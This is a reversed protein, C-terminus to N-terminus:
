HGHAPHNQHGSFNAGWGMNGRGGYNGSFGGANYGYNQGYGQGSQHGGLGGLGYGSNQNGIHSPYGGGFSQQSQQPPPLGSQATQGPAASTASGPRGPQNLSPSPGATQKSDGFPKLSEESASQQGSQQQSYSQGQGPFANSRSFADGFGASNTGHSQNGSPQTSNSRNYDGFGGSVGSDRGHMSSQGFGGVNAPSSSHQDYPTQPSMGYGHHPQAYMSNKGAYPGFGQGYNGYQSMYQQYYPSSYYHQNYGYGANHPHQHLHGQQSQPGAHGSLAPNPTNNGSNQAEGYRSPIQQAQSSAYGSENPTSGFASGSRQQSIGADQNGAGPQNYTNSQGGYAYYNNYRQQDSTYYSSQYDGPASSTAGITSQAAQPQQSAPGQSQAGFNDYQSQQPAQHGFPDYKPASSTSEAQGGQHGYRGFQSYSQNGQSAQTSIAQPASPAPPSAQQSGVPQQTPMPLGPAQKPAPEAPEHTQEASPQSPRTVPPLSTRPQATPSHQPPQTRTEAEERDEDVDLADADFDGNLGMSGFQVAARDVAHNSPMVVAEQQELIKRQYSASRPTATAKYATAAFGSMPPRPLASQQPAHLPTSGGAASGIDHSSAVTSAVTESLPEHVTDDPLHEVNEETLEGTAPLLTTDLTKGDIPNSEALEPPQVEDAVPPIPLSEAETAEEPDSTPPNEDVVQPATVPPAAPKPPAATKAAIMQAWTKKPAAAPPVVSKVPETTSASSTKSSVKSPPPGAEHDLSGTAEV